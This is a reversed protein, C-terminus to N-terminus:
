DLTVYRSRQLTAADILGDLQAVAADGSARGAAADAAEADFWVTVVIWGDDANAGRATTRRILGPQHYAFETQVRRDAALFDDEAADAALQFTVTEITAM